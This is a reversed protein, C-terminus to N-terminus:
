RRRFYLDMVTQKLITKRTPRGRIPGPRCWAPSWLCVGTGLHRGDHFLKVAQLNSDFQGSALMHETIEAVADKVKYPRTFNIVVTHTGAFVM